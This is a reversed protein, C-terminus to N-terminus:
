VSLGLSRTLSRRRSRSRSAVLEPMAGAMAMMVRKSLTPPGRKSFHHISRRLPALLHIDKKLSDYNYRNQLLEHVRHSRGDPVNSGVSGLANGINLKHHPFFEFHLEQWCNTAYIQNWSILVMEQRVSGDLSAYFQKWSSLLM